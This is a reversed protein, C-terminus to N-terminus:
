FKLTCHHMSPPVGLVSRTCGSKQVVATLDQFPHMAHVWIPRWPIRFRKGAFDESFFRFPDESGRPGSRKGSSPATNTIEKCRIQQNHSKPHRVGERSAWCRPDRPDSGKEIGPNGHLLITNCRVLSIEHMVAKLRGGVGGGRGDKGPKHLPAVQM